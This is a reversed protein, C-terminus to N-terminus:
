RSGASADARGVLQDLVIRMGRREGRQGREVLDGLATEVVDGADGDREREVHGVADYSARAIPSPPTAAVGTRASAVSAASTPWGHVSSVTACAAPPAPRRLARREVVM